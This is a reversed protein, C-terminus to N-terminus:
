YSKKIDAIATDVLNDNSKKDLNNVIIERTAEIALDAAYAQIEEVASQKMREIREALQKEKRRVSAKLEKSAEKKIQDANHKANELIKAAEIEADRQKRQYQALLEQAEVRLNEATEIDTKIKEIREDLASIVAKRSLKFVVSAFVVFSVAVWFDTNAFLNGWFGLDSHAPAAM